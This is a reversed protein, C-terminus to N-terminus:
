KFDDEAVDVMGEVDAGVGEALVAVNGGEKVVKVKDVVQVRALLLINVRNNIPGIGAIVIVDMITNIIG